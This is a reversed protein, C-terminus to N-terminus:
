KFKKSSMPVPQNFNALLFNNSINTFEKSKMQVGKFEIFSTQFMNSGMPAPM